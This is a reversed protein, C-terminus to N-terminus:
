VLSVVKWEKEVGESSYGDFRFYPYIRGITPVPDPQSFPYTLMTRQEEYIRAKQCFVLSPLFFAIAYFIIFQKKM